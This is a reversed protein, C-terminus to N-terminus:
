RILFSYLAIASVCYACNQIDDLRCSRSHLNRGAHIASGWGFSRQERRRRPAVRPLATGLGALGSLPKNEADRLTVSLLSQLNLNGAIQQNFSVTRQAETHDLTPTGTYLSFTSRPAREHKRLYQQYTVTAVNPLQAEPDASM